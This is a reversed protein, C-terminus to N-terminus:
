ATAVKTPKQLFRRRIARIAAALATVVCLAIATVYASMLWVWYWGELSYYQGEIFHPKDRSIALAGVSGAVVVSCALWSVIPRWRRRVMWGAFIVLGVVAPLAMAAVIFKGFRSFDTEPAEILLATVFLASVVPLVALTRLGWRRRSIMRWATAGPMVLLALCFFAAWGAFLVPTQWTARADYPKWPLRRALRPDLPMKVDRPTPRPRGAGIAQGIAHGQWAATTEGYSFHLLPPQGGSELSLINALPLNGWAGGTKPKPGPCTWARSGTSGDLGDIRRDPFSRQVVITPAAPPSTFVGLVSIGDPQYNELHQKWLLSGSASDVAQLNPADVFLLEGAGDGTLDDTWVQFGLHRYAIDTRYIVKGRSDLSVVEARPGSGWLNLCILSGGAPRRVVSPVPRNRWKEENDDLRGTDPDVATEWTWRSTGDTAKLARLRATTTKLGLPPNPEGDFELSYVEAVGDEDLDAVLPPPIGRFPRHNELAPPLVHEWLKEGRAGDIARLVFKTLDADSQAPVVVDTVGDGNLDGLAPSFALSDLQHDAFQGDATLPTKWRVSGQRGSLAVLWLRGDQSSWTRRQGNVWDMVAAFVVEPQGDHDLDSVTLLATRYINYVELDASWLVRGSRGSVAHLPKFERAGGRMNSAILLDALGDGDLDDSAQLIPAQGSQMGQINTTWLLRGNAGSLAQVASGFGLHVLDRVHDGDFDGAPQWSQGLRRWREGSAGSFADLTGGQDARMQDKAYYRVLDDAGDGDLDALDFREFHTAEDVIEGSGASVVLLSSEGQSRQAPGAAIALRPWGDAGESWWRLRSVFREPSDDSPRSKQFSTWLREGTKGSLADIYLDFRAGWLSATFVDHRGDADIDPGVLFHDVQQDMTLLRTQWLTQGSAVDCAELVGWPPGTFAQRDSHGSPFIAEPRGDDNLDEIVPWSPDDVGFAPSWPFIAGDRTWILSQRELSWAFVRALSAQGAQSFIEEVGVIAPLSSPAQEVLQVPRAPRYPLEFPEAASKGTRADLLILRRGAISLVRPQGEVNILRPPQPAYVFDGLRQSRIGSRRVIGDGSGHWGGGCSTGYSNAVFWRFAEPTEAVQIDFWASELEYSWV